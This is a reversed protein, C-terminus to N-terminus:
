VMKHAVMLALIYPEVLARMCPVWSAQMYEVSSAVLKCSAVVVLIYGVWASSALIYDVVVVLVM